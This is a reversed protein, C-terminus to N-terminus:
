FVSLRPQRSALAFLAVFDEISLTVCESSEGRSRTVLIAVDGPAKCYKERITALETHHRWSHSRYKCDIKAEPWSAIEVDPVSIGMDMARLIIRKGGLKQAVTREMKKWTSAHTMAKEDAKQNRCRNEQQSLKCVPDSM